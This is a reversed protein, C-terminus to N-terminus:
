TENASQSGRWAVPACDRNRTGTTGAQDAQWTRPIREQRFARIAQQLWASVRTATPQTKTSQGLRLWAAGLVALPDCTAVPAAQTSKSLKVGDPTCIIPLHVYRPMPYQLAQQLRFQCATAPLLDAGRVVHTVGQQADDVVVALHYAYVGDIRRVIFDGCQRYVDFRLRGYLADNVWAQDGPSIRMRLACRTPDVAVLCRHHRRQTAVRLDHRSCSCAFVSGSARLQEVAHAYLARRDQQYVVPEDADLGCAQLTRLQHLAIAHGTREQDLNEIRILWTGKAQRAHLWSGLATVLSGFHLPGSPSPAFRGRYPASSATVMPPDSHADHADDRTACVILCDHKLCSLGPTHHVRITNHRLGPVTRTHITGLDRHRPQSLDMGNRATRLAM